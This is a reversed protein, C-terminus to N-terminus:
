GKIFTKQLKTIFSEITNPLLFKAKSKISEIEVCTNSFNNEIEIGDLYIKSINKNASLNEEACIKIKTKLPLIIPSQITLFDVHLLPQLEVFELCDIGPSIIAGKASKIYGTSGTRTGILVGTGRFQEYFFDNFYIKLPYATSSIVALENIGFHLKNNHKVQILDIKEFNLKKWNSLLFNINKENFSSYFGLNGGNIGIIKTNAFNYEIAHKIFTGDGGVSFLYDPKNNNSPLFHKSLVKILNNGIKIAKPSDSCKVQFTNKISM